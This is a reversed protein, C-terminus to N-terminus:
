VAKIFYFDVTITSNREKVLVVNVIHKVQKVM